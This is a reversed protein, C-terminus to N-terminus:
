SNTLADELKAWASIPITKYTKPEAVPKFVSEVREKTTEWGGLEKKVKEVADQFSCNDMKQVLQYINFDIGCGFCHARMDAFVTFSPSKESHVPCCGVYKDGVKKLRVYQNYVRLCGIDSKIQDLDDM